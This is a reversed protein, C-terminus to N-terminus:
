VKEIIGKPNVITIEFLGFDKANANTNVNVNANSKVKVEMKNKLTYKHGKVGKEIFDKEHM